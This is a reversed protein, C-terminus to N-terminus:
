ETTPSPVRSSWTRGEIWGLSKLAARFGGLWGRKADQADLASTLTLIGLTRNQATPTSQARVGLPGNATSLALLASIANRRNM